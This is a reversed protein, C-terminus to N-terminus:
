PERVAQEVVRGALARHDVVGVRVVHASSGCQESGLMWHRREEAPMEIEFAVLAHVQGREM